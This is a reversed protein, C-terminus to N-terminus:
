RQIAENFSEEGLKKITRAAADLADYMFPDGRYGPHRVSKAFRFVDGHGVWRLAKRRKPRIDHPQTGFHVFVGYNVGADTMMGTNEIWVRGKLGQVRMAINNEMTGTRSHKAAGRVSGEHVEHALRAVLERATDYGIKEAKIIAQKPTIGKAPM